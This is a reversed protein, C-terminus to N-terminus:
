LKKAGDWGHGLLFEKGPWTSAGPKYGVRSLDYPTPFQASVPNKARGALSQIEKTVAPDQHAQNKYWSALDGVKAHGERPTAWDFGKRAWAYGGVDNNARLTAHQVGAAKLRSETQRTFESAFGQGQYKPSLLMQVNHVHTGHQDERLGRVVIGVKKGDNYISGTVEASKGGDPAKTMVASDVKVTFDGYKGEFLPAVDKRVDAGVDKTLIARVDAAPGAPADARVQAALDRSRAAVSGKIVAGGRLGAVAKADDLDSAADGHKGADLSRAASYLRSEAEERQGSTLGREGRVDGAIARATAAHGAARPSGRRAFGAAEGPQPRAHDFAKDGAHDFRVSVHKGDVATVIGHGHVPHHVHDGTGPIGVFRWGHEYGHPGVKTELEAATGSGKSPAGGLPFRRVDDGRHVALHTFQVVRHPQEAPLPDGPGAYALTVHPKWDAHESASLDALDNRLHDGGPISAPIFVPTRGDSGDSPPFTGIGTLTASLPGPVRGAADQARQCAEGFAQDSVDKGLYVVTVHHDTVGGPVQGVTGPPLDLSIMGSRPSLDYGTAAKSEGAGAGSAEAFGAHWATAAKRALLSGALPDPATVREGRGHRVAANRGAKHAARTVRDHSTATM